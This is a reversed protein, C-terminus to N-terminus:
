VVAMDLRTKAYAASGKRAVIETRRYAEVVASVPVDLRKATARWSMRQHDRLRVVEDRRFV